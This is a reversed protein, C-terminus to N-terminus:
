PAFPDDPMEGAPPGPPRAGGTPAGRILADVDAWLAQWAVREAAPLRALAAPGRVGALNWDVLWDRLAQVVAPRGQSPGSEARESWAAREARLWELAQARLAARAAEDPPPDAGMGGGALAAACAAHYRHRAQRDDALHPDAALSDAALRAAAAYLRREAALRAFELREAASAPPDAGGLVASLRPVLAVDREVLALERDVQEVRDPHDKVRERLRRLTAVADDYRGAIRLYAGLTFPAAGVHKGDLSMAQRVEAIAEDHQGQLYFQVGLSYHAPAGKPDIEIAQRYAAVAEEPRGLAHLASGLNWHAAGEKPNLAIAQRYAAVAEEPRGLAHLAIGLNCHAATYKSKPDLAIAQRYAAVAEEPRGLALWARGLNNHPFSDKPNLAIATRCAAIAEERAGAAALALVLSIHARGDKPNLEVAKRLAAIAEGKRGQRRLAAGMDAYVAANQPRAVLAARFFGVSEGPHDDWLMLALTRNLWFDGPRRQQAARLLPEPEGGAAKLWAALTHLLQPPPEAGPPGPVAGALRELAGRDGRVAPDRVRDRWAPDPDVRRTLGLLRARLGDDPTVLAWDDLAAVLQERIASDRIRAADVGADGSALLGAGAFAAAYVQGATEIGRGTWFSAASGTRNAELREALDVDARARALRAGLDGAGADDLRGEAQKLVDRAETWLGQRLLGRAQEMMVAVAERARGARRAAETQRVGEARAEEARRLGDVRAAEARQRQVWLGGGVSFGVLALVAAALAAGAPNRRGWRWAHGLPGIRRARIPRGEVFRHLDEALAGADSYRRAPERELAKHVVTELDRPILPDLARLRPPECQTVLRILRHRDSEDFAPRLALLEYLTLGLAYVDSRADCRGEFREPAMYRVTGVLDGTHTLDDSDAVKALGFDAVWVTGQGDLLLNSPKIDRHLVGQRHAYELAEAVQVGILAVSRAYPCAPDAASSRGSRGPLVLSSSPAPAAAPTARGPAPREESREEAPALPFRGTLLSRAADTVTAAHGGASPAPTAGPPGPSRLRRLEKLVADLGLGAIFQMVYYHLGEAEGVGFVPVINTHHLRAAARAERHFRLLQKPNRLGPAAMVKLAVRRGLSEQEAEYVVGMGGRGVERLIRYDGLREPAAGRVAAVIGTLDSDAPKLEEMMLLAPFLRRIEGALNPHAAAYEEVAPREGRRQRELFAEALEGILDEPRLSEGASPGAPEPRRTTAERQDRM